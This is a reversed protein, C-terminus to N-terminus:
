RLINIEEILKIYSNENEKIKIVNILNNNMESYKDVENSLMTINSLLQQKEVIEKGKSDNQM